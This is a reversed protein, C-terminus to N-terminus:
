FEDTSNRLKNRNRTWTFVNTNLTTGEHYKSGRTSTDGTDNEFVFTFNYAFKREVHLFTHGERDITTSSCLLGCDVGADDGEPDETPLFRM